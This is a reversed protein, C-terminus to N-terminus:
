RRTRMFVINIVLPNLLLNDKKPILAESTRDEMRDKYQNSFMVTEFFDAKVRPSIELSASLKLAKTIRLIVEQKLDDMQRSTIIRNKKLYEGGYERICDTEQWASVEEKSRYSSADSPSHSSIRYTITDLLVPGNGKLLIKKREIADAVALPNYGDVREAHLNEPNVEAGVRALIQYGMTEGLTQGGM